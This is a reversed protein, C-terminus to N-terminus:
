LKKFKDNLCCFQPVIEINIAVLRTHKSDFTKLFVFLVDLFSEEDITQNM